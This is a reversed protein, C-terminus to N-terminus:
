QGDPNLFTEQLNKTFLKPFRVVLEEAVGGGIYPNFKLSEVIAPNGQADYIRNNQVVNIFDKFDFPVNSFRKIMFQNGTPRDSYAPNESAPIFSNVYHFGDWMAKASETDDNNTAIRNYKYDTASENLIFIKPVSFHDSSLLLMGTRASIQLAPTAALQTLENNLLPFIGGISTGVFFQAPTTNFIVIEKHFIKKALGFLGGSFLNNFTGSSSLSNYASIAPGLVKNIEQIVVDLDNVFSNIIKEPSTLDTKQVAKAFPINASVLNKVMVFPQYNVKRPQTIVQYITGKYDQLTNEDQGDTQYSILYNGALEDTNYTYEPQYIDRLQYVPPLVNKDRRVLNVTGTGDANVTVVIKANYKLKMADLLQAFTGKYWGVQENKSPILFGFLSEDTANVPNYLKEPLIFENYYPSGKAWIDSVFTMKGASLYEVGKAMLDRVYMGAHYKVPSIIFKIIDEILKIITALLAVLYILEIVFKIIETLEVDSWNVIIEALLNYLKNIAEAIAKGVNYAMLTAMAAQEYNPVKSNIYPVFHYMDSSIYGPLGTAKFTDSALYEFTFGGAVDNIWDVTAHSVAKATISIRDKIQMGNTLDLYGYFATSTTKGDTLDIRLSPGEEIGVDGSLGGAIYTTLLDYNERVWKFDTITLVGSTPFQDKGYNLQFALEPWNEPPPVQVTNIYFLASIM